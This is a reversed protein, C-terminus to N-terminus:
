QSFTRVSSRVFPRVPILRYSWGGFDTPGFLEDWLQSAWLRLPDLKEVACYSFFILTISIIWWSVVGCCPARIKRWVSALRTRFCKYDGRKNQAWKAAGSLWATEYFEGSSEWSIDRFVRSLSKQYSLFFVRAFYRFVNLYKTSVSISMSVMVKWTWIFNVLPM